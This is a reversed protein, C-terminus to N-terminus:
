SPRFAAGHLHLAIVPAGITVPREVSCIQVQVGLGLALEAALAVRLAEEVVPDGTSLGILIGGDLSMWPTFDTPTVPGMIHYRAHAGDMIVREMM